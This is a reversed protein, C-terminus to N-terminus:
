LGHEAVPSAVVILLGHVAFFLLGREGCSSFARACCRLGLSALFLIFLNFFFFSAYSPSIPCPSGWPSPLIRVSIGHSSPTHCSPLFSLGMHSSSPTFPRPLLYVPTQPPAAWVPDQLGGLGITPSTIPTTKHFSEESWPPHLSATGLELTTTHQPSGSLHCPSHRVGPSLLPNVTLTKLLAGGVCNIPLSIFFLGPLPKIFQLSLCVFVTLLLMWFSPIEM